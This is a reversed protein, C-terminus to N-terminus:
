SRKKLIVNEEKRSKCKKRERGDGKMCEPHGSGQRLRRGKGQRIMSEYGCFTGPVPHLSPPSFLCPGRDAAGSSVSTSSKNLLAKKEKRRQPYNNLVIQVSRTWPPSSPFALWGRM